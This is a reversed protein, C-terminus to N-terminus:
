YREEINDITVQSITDTETEYPFVIWEDPSKFSSAFKIKTKVNTNQVLVCIDYSGIYPQLTKGSDLVDDVILIDKLGTEFNLLLPINLKYSLITSLILGGRPIGYIYKYNSSNIKLAMLDVLFDYDNWTLCKKM